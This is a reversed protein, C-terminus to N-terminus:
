QVKIRPDLLGYTLDALISGLVVMIAVFTTVGMVATYDYSLAREYAFRGIGPWAFIVEIVLAGSFLRPLELGILTVLPMLANRLAHGVLVAREDLGKARATRVYEQSLVGLMSSRVYRSWVSLYLFSLTIAPLLLHVFRDALDGGYVSDYAGSSPLAPLGWARFGVAFVLILMLGLWFQPVAFGVVAVASFIKDALRGRNVACIVGVVAGLTGGVLIASLSLLLTNPLRQLLDSMIPTADIMSRGFDGHVIQL